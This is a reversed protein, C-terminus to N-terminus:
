DGEQVYPNITLGNYFEELNGAISILCPGEPTDWLEHDKWFVLGDTSDARLVVHNGLLDYAIPLFRFESVENLSLMEAKLSCQPFADTLGYLGDVTIGVNSPGYQNRYERFYEAVPYFSNQKGPYGGNWRLCFEIFGGPLRLGFENQFSSLAESTAPVLSQRRFFLTKIM